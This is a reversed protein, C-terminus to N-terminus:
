LRTPHVDAGAAPMADGPRTGRTDEFLLQVLPQTVRSAQVPLLHRAKAGGQPERQLSEECSLTIKQPEPM